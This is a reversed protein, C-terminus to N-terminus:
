IKSVILISNSLSGANCFLKEVIELVEVTFPKGMGMFFDSMKIYVSEVGQKM